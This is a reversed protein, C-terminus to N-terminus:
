TDWAGPQEPLLVKNGAWQLVTEAVDATYSYSYIPGGGRRAGTNKETLHAQAPGMLNPHAPMHQPCCLTQSIQASTM